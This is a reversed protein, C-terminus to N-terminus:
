KEIEPTDSLTDILEKGESPSTQIDLHSSNQETIEWEKRERQDNMRFIGNFILGFQKESQCLCYKNVLSSLDEYTPIDSLDENVPDSSKQQIRRSVENLSLDPIPPQLARTLQDLPLEMSQNSNETSFRNFNNM